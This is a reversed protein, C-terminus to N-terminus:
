RTSPIWWSASRTTPKSRSPTSSTGRPSGTRRRRSTRFPSPLAKRSFMGFWTASFIILLTVIFLTIIYSFKIPNKLLRLQRYQESSRSIAQIKEVIAGPIFQSVVVVGIVEQPGFSAFIPVIGSVLDGGAVSQERSSERGAFVEERIKASLPVSEQGPHEPDPFVSHGQEYDFYIEVMGLRGSSQRQEVLNRLYAVRARDQLRHATIDASIQRAFHKANDAIQQYYAQAVEVTTNLTEGLRISFWTDISYSLFNIAVLFLIITPVLSLGVFAAVLKTRLRSGIVGRRREFVLKVVNRVILFILLIILIININILGFILINNSVPLITQQRSLHSELYSLGAIVVMTIVIIIRERRRRRIEQAELRPASQKM